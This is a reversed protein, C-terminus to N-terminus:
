PTSVFVILESLPAVGGHGGVLQTVTLGGDILNIGDLLQQAYSPSFSSGGGGPNYLDSQFAFSDGSTPVHILLMDGAHSNTLPYVNVPNTADNLVFNGGATVAQFSPTTPSQSLSDPVITSAAAFVHDNYFMQSAEHVVITAGAAVFSRLGASHDQHHHTAVVHTVSKGPFQTGAWSIIADAREPSLPAEVIVIGADQEVALSHHTGGTLHFVGPALETAMVTSQPFLDLPIGLAAFSQFFQHSNDGATALDADSAPNVGAPFDFTTAEFTPSVEVASRTESHITDSGLEITVTNPFKVGSTETWNTYRVTVEVDRLLMDNVMTTARDLSGDIPDVWLRIPAVPDQIDVVRHTIGGNTVEGAETALSANARVDRLLFHPNLLRQQKRGSAWRSSLMGTDGGGFVSDLGAVAGLNGAYIESYMLPVGGIYSIVRSYDIRMNDNDLDVSTVADFTSVAEATAGATQGENAMSRTGSVTLKFGTMADLAAGGGVFDVALGVTTIPTADPTAADPTIAAADPSGGGGDDDGCAALPALMLLTSLVVFTDRRLM